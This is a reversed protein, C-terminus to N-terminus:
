LARLQRALSGRREKYKELMLDAVYDSGLSQRNPLVATVYDYVKVDFLDIVEVEDDLGTTISIEAKKINDRNGRITELIESVMKRNLHTKNKGVSLVLDASCPEFPLLSDFVRSLARGREQSAQESRMDAFKLKLRRFQTGSNIKTYVDEPVIIRLEIRIGDKQQWIDNIYRELGEHSLSGRNRQIGMVSSELDYFVTVDKGIYEDPELVMEEAEEDVKARKPIDTESLRIFNFVWYGERKKNIKDLRAREGYYEKTRESLAQSDAVVVWRRFDFPASKGTRPDMSCVQYYEIRIKRYAVM